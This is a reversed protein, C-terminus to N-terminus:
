IKSQCSYMFYDPMQLSGWSSVVPIHYSLLTKCKPSIGAVPALNVGYCSGFDFPFIYFFFQSIIIFFGRWEATFIGAREKREKRLIQKFLLSVINGISPEATVSILNIVWLNWKMDTESKNKLDQNIKNGDRGM